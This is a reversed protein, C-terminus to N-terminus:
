HPPLLSRTVRRPGGEPMRERGEAMTSLDAIPRPGAGNHKATEPRLKLWENEPPLGQVSGCFKDKKGHDNEESRGQMGLSTDPSGFQSGDVPRDDVFLFGGDIGCDHIQLILLRLIDPRVDRALVALVSEAAKIRIDIVLEVGFVVAHRRRHALNRTEIRPLVDDNHKFHVVFFPAVLRRGQVVPEEYISETWPQIRERTRM